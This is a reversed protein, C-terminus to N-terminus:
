IEEVHLRLLNESADMFHFEPDIVRYNSVGDSVADDRKPKGLAGWDAARTIFDLGAFRIVGGQTEYGDVEAKMRVAPISLPDSGARSITLEAARDSKSRQYTWWHLSM